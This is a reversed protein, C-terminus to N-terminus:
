EDLRLWNPVLALFVIEETLLPRRVLTPETFVFNLSAKTALEGIAM